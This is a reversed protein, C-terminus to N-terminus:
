QEPAELRLDVMPVHQQAALTVTLAQESLLGQALLIEGLRRGPQEAQARVAAVVQPAHLRGADVLLEGLRLGGARVSEDAPGHKPTSAVPEPAEDAVRHRGLRMYPRRVVRLRVRSVVCRR